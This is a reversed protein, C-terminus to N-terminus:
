PFMPLLSLWYSNVACDWAIRRFITITLKYAVTACHRSLWWILYRWASRQESCFLKLFINQFQLQPAYEPWFQEKLVGTMIDEWQPGWSTSCGLFSGYWIQTNGIALFCSQKNSFVTAINILLLYKPCSFLSSLLSNM